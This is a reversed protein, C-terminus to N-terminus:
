SSSHSVLARVQGEVLQQQMYGEQAAGSGEQTATGMDLLMFDAPQGTTERGKGKGNMGGSRYLPSDSRLTTDSAYSSPPRSVSSNRARLVQHASNWFNLLASCPLSSEGSAPTSAQPQGTYMFQETRDRSAKMNQTRIELVDKFGISTDALKSQLMMM